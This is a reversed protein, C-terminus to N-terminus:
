SYIDCHRLRILRSRLLRYAEYWSSMQIKAWLSWPTDKYEVRIRRLQYPEGGPLNRGFINCCGGRYGASEAERIVDQNYAGYPYCILDVATDLTEQIVHHSERLERSMNESDLESLRRHTLGHSGVTIGKKRNEQLTGWDMLSAKELGKEMDWINVGGVHSAVIFVAAPFGFGALCPVAYIATSEYGDDFTIAVSKKKFSETRRVGDLLRELSIVEFSREKLWIMHSRFREPTVTYIQSTRGGAVPEIRHYTLIVAGKSAQTVAPAIVTLFVILLIFLLFFIM